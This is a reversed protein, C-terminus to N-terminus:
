ILTKLVRIAESYNPENSQEAVIQEYRIVNDKDIIFVSRALLRLEKILIGFALGFSVDRHDSLVIARDIGGAACFRKIAFPLDASVNLIVVDGPQSEADENFWHIQLDCVPTDLSPTVSIVKIKGAFDALSKSALEVDLLQFDRAKDGVKVAEGLLTLANGNMTIIDTREM